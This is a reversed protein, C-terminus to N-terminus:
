QPSRWHSGPKILRLAAVPDDAQSDPLKSKFKALAGDLRVQQTAESGGNVAAMEALTLTDWYAQRLLEVDRISLGTLAARARDISPDGSGKIVGSRTGAFAEWIPRSRATETYAEATVDDVYKYLQHLYNKGPSKALKAFVRDAMVEPDALQFARWECTTVVLSRYKAANDVILEDDM